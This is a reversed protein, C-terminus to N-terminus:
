IRKKWLGTMIIKPLESILQFSSALIGKSIYIHFNNKSTNIQEM